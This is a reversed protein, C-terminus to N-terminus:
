SDPPDLAKKAQAMTLIPPRTAASISAVLTAICRL